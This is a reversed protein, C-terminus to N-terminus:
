AASVVRVGDVVGEGRVEVSGETFVGLEVDLYEGKGDDDAVQLVYRGDLTAALAEVPVALITRPRGVSVRVTSAAGAWQPRMRADQLSLTVRFAPEDSDTGADPDPGSSQSAVPVIRAVRGHVVAGNPLGVTADRGPRLGRLEHASVEAVATGRTSALRAIETGPALPDGVNSLHELVRVTGTSVHAATADVSGTVEVDLDEQWREVAAATADDFYGMHPDLGSGYGLRSLNKELVEVDRGSSGRSLTRYLPIAGHFLVTPRDDVRWLVDGRRADGGLRRVHTLVGAASSRVSMEGAYTLTASLETEARYRVERVVATPPGATPTRVESEGPLQTVAVAAGTAVIGSAAM